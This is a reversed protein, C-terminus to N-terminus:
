KNIEEYLKIVAKLDKHTLFVMSETNDMDKGGSYLIIPYTYLSKERIEVYLDLGEAAASTRLTRNRTKPKM